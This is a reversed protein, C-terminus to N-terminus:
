LEERIYALFGQCGELVDRYTTEFEGTYWPDAIEQGARDTFDLLLRIKNQPDGGAIRSMNRINWHDMGILYDYEEYDRRTMQRARHGTCPIHYKRFISMTGHHIGNGIAETSTAASDIVLQDALGAKEAMDKLVFEAMPSRCINGHCIFLVKIM